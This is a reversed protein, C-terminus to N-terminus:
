GLSKVVFLPPRNKERRVKAVDQIIELFSEAVNPSRNELVAFNGFVLVFGKPQADLWSFDLLTDELADWNFGFSAPFVCSQYLAHLLTEKNFIPARDVLVAFYGQRRLESLLEKIPQTSEQVVDNTKLLDLM